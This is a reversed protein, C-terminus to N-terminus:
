FYFLNRLRMISEDENYADLNPMTRGTFSYNTVKYIVETIICYIVILEVKGTMTMYAKM